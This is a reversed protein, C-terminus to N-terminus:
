IINYSGKMLSLIKIQLQKNVREFINKKETMDELKEKLSSHQEKLSIYEIELVEYKKKLEEHNAEEPTNNQVITLTDTNIM